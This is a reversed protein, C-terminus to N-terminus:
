SYSLSTRNDFVNNFSADGDAWTIVTTIPTGTEDIKQIQWSAASTATGIAAKGVYTVGTTSVDDIQTAVAGSVKRVTAGSPDYELPLMVLVGTTEDFSSNLIEQESHVHPNVVAM